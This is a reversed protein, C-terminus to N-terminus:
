VVQYELLKDNQTVSGFVLIMKPNPNLGIIKVLLLLVRFFERHVQKWPSVKRPSSRQTADGRVM